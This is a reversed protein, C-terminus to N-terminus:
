FLMSRVGDRKGGFRAGPRMRAASIGKGTTSKTPSAAQMAAQRARIQERERHQYHAAQAQAQAQTEAQVQSQRKQAPAAQNRTQHHPIPLSLDASQPRLQTAPKVPSNPASKTRGHASQIQPHPHAPPGLQQPQPQPSPRNPLAPQPPDPPLQKQQISDARTTALGNQSEPRVEGGKRGETKEKALVIQCWKKVGTAGTSAQEAKGVLESLVRMWGQKDDANEAYFDIVEGNAFRLRFGEEVFMYGEEDEAFGSKRRKSKSPSGPVKTPSTVPNGSSSLVDPQVLTSKDDILAAAKALNITARPQNTYEHFATLKSGSLKFFRRRWYQLVWDAFVELHQM